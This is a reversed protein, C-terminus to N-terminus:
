FNEKAQAQSKKVTERMENSVNHFHFISNM